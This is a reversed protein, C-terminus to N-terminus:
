GAAAVFRGISDQAEKSEPFFFIPWDHMLGAREDLDIAPLKAKLARSDAVLIDDGGAFVQM